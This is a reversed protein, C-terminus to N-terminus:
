AAQFDSFKKDETLIHSQLWNKLTKMINTTLVLKGEEIDSCMDKIHIYFKDHIQKHAPFDPYGARQMVGEETTFHYRTYDRMETLDKQATQTLEELGAHL